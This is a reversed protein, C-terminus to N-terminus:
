EFTVDFYEIQCKITFNIKFKIYRCIGLNIKEFNFDHDMVIEKFESFHLLDKSSSVYVKTNEDKFVFSLKTLYSKKLSGLDFLESEFCTSLQNQEVKTGETYKAQVSLNYLPEKLFCKIKIYPEKSKITVKEGLSKAIPYMTEESYGGMVVFSCRENIPSLFNNQICIDETTAVSNIKIIPTFCFSNDSTPYIINDIIEINDGTAVEVWRESLLPTYGYKVFTSKQITGDKTMEAFGKYANQYKFLFRQTSSPTSSFTPLNMLVSNKTHLQISWHNSACIIIDDITGNANELYLYYFKNEIPMITTKYIFGEKVFDITSSLNAIELKEENNRDLVIIKPMVEGLYWFSLIIEKNAELNLLMGAANNFLKNNKKFQIGIDHLAEKLSFTTNYSDWLNIQECANIRNFYNAEKLNQFNTIYSLSKASSKKFVSNKVYNVGETHLIIKNHMNYVNSTEIYDNSFTKLSNNNGLLFYEKDNFYYFGDHVCILQSPITKLFKIKNASKYIVPKYGPEKVQVTIHSAKKFKDYDCTLEYNSVVCDSESTLLYSEENFEVKDYLTTTNAVLYVAKNIVYHIYIVKGSNDKVFGKDFELVGIKQILSYEDISSVLNEAYPEFSIYSIYAINCYKLKKFGDETLIFSETKLISPSINNVDFSKKEYFVEYGDEASLVYESLDLTNGFADILESPLPMHKNLTTNWVIEQEITKVSDILQYSTHFALNNIGISYPNEIKTLSNYFSIVTSDTLSTAKFFLIKDTPLFPYFNNYIPVNVLDESYLPQKIYAKYEIAEQIYFAVSQIPAMCNKLYVSESNNIFRHRLCSAAISINYVGYKDNFDFTLVKIDNNEKVIIGDIINSIYYSNLANYGNINRLDYDKSNIIKEGAVKLFSVSDSKLVSLYYEEGRKTIVGGNAYMDTIYTYDITNIKIEMDKTAIYNDFINDCEYIENTTDDYITFFVDEGDLFISDNKQYTFTNTYYALDTILEGFYFPTLVPSSNTYVILDAILYNNEILPIINKDMEGKLMRIDLEYHVYGIEKVIVKETTNQPIITIIYEVPKQIDGPTMYYDNEVSTNIEFETDNTIRCLITANGEIYFKIQNSLRRITFISEQNLMSEYFNDQKYFGNFNISTDNVPQFDPTICFNFFRSGELGDLNIKLRGHKKSPALAFGKECHIFNDCENFYGLDNACLKINEHTLYGEETLYFGDKAALLTQGNKNIIANFSGYPMNSAVKVRYSHNEIFNFFPQFTFNEKAADTIFKPFHFKKNVTKLRKYNINFDSPEIKILDSAEIIAEAQIENLVDTPKYLKLKVSAEQPYKKHYESILVEDQLYTKVTAHIIPEDKVISVKLDENDGIGKQYYAPSIDYNHDFYTSQDFPYSWYDAGWKKTRYIDRNLESVIDFIPKGDIEFLYNTNNVAEIRIDKEDINLNNCLANVLGKTSSNVPHQSQYLIRTLLAKNNENNFRSLGVYLAFEDYINWISVPQAKLTFENNKYLYHIEMNEYVIIEKFYLYGEEYYSFEDSNEFIELETTIQQNPTKLTLDELTPQGIFIRMHRYPIMETKDLYTSLFYHDVYEKIDINIDSINNAIATLLKGGISSEPNRKFYLWDSLNKIMTSLLTKANIM